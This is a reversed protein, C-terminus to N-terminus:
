RRKTPRSSRFTWEGDRLTFTMSGREFTPLLKAGFRAYDGVVAARRPDAEYTFQRSSSLVAYKPRVLDLFAGLMGLAAGHHPAQILDCRAALGGPRVARARVQAVGRDELDGFLGVSRAGVAVRLVISTDNTTPTAGLWGADAPNLAVIDAGGFGELRDGARLRRVPVGAAEFRKVLAAGLPRETFQPPVALMGIPFAHLLAAAGNIHDDDAHSLTLLDIRSVGLAWLRPTAVRAGVDPVTASGCDYMLTRGGPFILVVANGHGVDLFTVALDGSSAGAGGSVGPAASAVADGVPGALLGAVALLLAAAACWVPRVRVARGWVAGAMLLLLALAVVPPAGFDSTHALPLDAGARVVGDMAGLALTAGLAPPAALLPHLHALLLHLFGLGLVAGTLPICPLNCLPTVLSCYHFHCLLLPAVALLIITSTFLSRRLGGIMRWAIWRPRSMALASAPDLTESGARGWAFRAAAIMALVAVFTLQFGAGFLEEPNWLLIVIAGAGLLNLRDARRLLAEGGFLALALVASRVVSPGGGVLCAYGLVFVVLLTARRRRAVGAVDLGRAVMGALLMFHLGSVALLHMTGSERFRRLDGADLFRREGLLFAAMMAAQRPAFGNFLMHTMRRRQAAFFSIVPSGAERALLDPREGARLVATRQAGLRSLYAAEDWEGEEEPERPPDLAATFRVRDGYFLPDGSASLRLLAVGSAGVEAGPPGLTEVRVLATEWAPRGPFGRAGSASSFAAVRPRPEAVVVGTVTVAPSRDLGAADLDALLRDLHDPPLLRAWAAHHALGGVGVAVLTVAVRWPGNPAAGPKLWLAVAGALALAFAPAAIEPAVGTVGSLAVGAAFALGALLLPRRPWP